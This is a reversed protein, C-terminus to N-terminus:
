AHDIIERMQVSGTIERQTRAMSALFEDALDNARSLYNESDELALERLTQRWRDPTARPDGMKKAVIGLAIRVALSEPQPVPQYKGDVTKLKHVVNYRNEALSMLPGSKGSLATARLYWSLRQEEDKVRRGLMLAAVQDHVALEMLAQTDLEAYPHEPFERVTKCMTYTRDIFNPHPIEECDQGVAKNFPLIHLDNYRAIEEDSFDGLAMVLMPDHDGIPPPRMLVDPVPPTAPLGSVPAQEAAASAAATAVASGVAVPEPEIRAVSDSAKSFYIAAAMAAATCIITLTTKVNTNREKRKDPLHAFAGLCAAGALPTALVSLPLL